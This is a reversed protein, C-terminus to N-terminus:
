KQGFKEYFVIEAMDKRPRAGPQFEAYGLPTMAVVHHTDPIGLLRAVKLNDFLGVHVTGLGMAAAAIMLNEMAVAVDYMFWYEGKDTAAQGNFFGSVNKEACAVIVVPATRIANAAPNAGLTPNAALTDALEARAASNRIVVYRCCQTNAWSPAQRAAELVTELTSDDVPDPKYKRISRRNKIAEIAEM